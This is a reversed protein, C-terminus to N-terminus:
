TARAPHGPPPTRSAIFMQAYKQVEDFHKAKLENRVASSNLCFGGNQLYRAKASENQLRHYHKWVTAHTKKIYRERESHGANHISDMAFAAELTHLAAYFLIVAGWDPYGDM